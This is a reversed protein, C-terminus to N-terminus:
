LANPLVETNPPTKMQRQWKAPNDRIYTRIGELEKDNRIIMDYYGPQWKFRISHSLAYSTVGMKFGRIVAGLNQFQPGFENAKWKSKNDKDFGIIGHLHDPMLIFADLEVFPYHQPISKWCKETYCGIELAVLCSNVITGFGPVRQDTCITIFYKANSGYDWSSLRVSQTRYKNSFLDAM